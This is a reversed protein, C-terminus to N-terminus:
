GLTMSTVDKFYSNIKDRSRSLPSPSTCSAQRTTLLAVQENLQRRSQESRQMSQTLFKRTQHLEQELEIPSLLSLFMPRRGCRSPRDSKTATLDYSDELNETEDVQGSEENKLAATGSSQCLSLSQFSELGRDNCAEDMFESEDFEQLFDDCWGVDDELEVKEEIQPHPNSSLDKENFDNFIDSYKSIETTDLSDRKCLM